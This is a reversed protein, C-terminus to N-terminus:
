INYIFYFIIFIIIFTYYHFIYIKCGGSKDLEKVAQFM